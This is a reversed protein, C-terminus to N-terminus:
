QFISYQQHSESAAKEAQQQSLEAIRRYFAETAARYVPNFTESLSEALEDRLRPPLNGWEGDRLDKM